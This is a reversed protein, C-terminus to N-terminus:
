LLVNAIRNPSQATIEIHIITVCNRLIVKTDDCTRNNPPNERIRNNNSIKKSPYKPLIYYLLFIKNEEENRGCKIKSETNDHNLYVFSHFVQM